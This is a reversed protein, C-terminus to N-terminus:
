KRKNTKFDNINLKGFKSNKIANLIEVPDNILDRANDSKPKILIVTERLANEENCEIPLALQRQDIVNVTNVTPAPTTPQTQSNDTCKANQIEDQKSDFSVKNRKLEQANQVEPSGLPRKNGVTQTEMPTNDFFDVDGSDQIEARVGSNSDAGSVHKSGYRFVENNIEDLEKQNQTATIPAYM